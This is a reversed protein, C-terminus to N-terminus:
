TFSASPTQEPISNRHCLNVTTQLKALPGGTAKAIKEKCAELKTKVLGVMAWFELVSEDLALLKLSTPLHATDTVAIPLALKTPWGFPFVFRMGDEAQKDQATFLQRGFRDISENPIVLQPMSLETSIKTLCSLGSYQSGQVFLDTHQSFGEKSIPAITGGEASTLPADREWEKRAVAGPSDTKLFPTRWM